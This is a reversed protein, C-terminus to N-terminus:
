ARDRTVLGFGIYGIVIKPLLNLFGFKILFIQYEIHAGRFERIVRTVLGFGIYRIVIKSKSLLNLFGFKILSIRINLTQCGQIGM